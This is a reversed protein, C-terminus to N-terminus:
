YLRSCNPFSHFVKTEGEKRESQVGKGKVRCEGQVLKAFLVVSLPITVDIDVMQAMAVGGPPASPTTRTDPGSAMRAVWATKIGWPFCVNSSFAPLESVKPRM